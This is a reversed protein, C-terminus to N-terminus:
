IPIEAEQCEVEVYKIFKMAISTGWPLSNRIPKEFVNGFLIDDASTPKLFRGTESNLLPSLRAALYSV